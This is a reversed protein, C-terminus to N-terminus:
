IIARWKVGLGSLNERFRALRSDADVGAVRCILHRPFGTLNKGKNKSVQKIFNM